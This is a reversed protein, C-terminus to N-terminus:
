LLQNLRRQVAHYDYGANTPRKKREEGNGWDGRIVERALEDM